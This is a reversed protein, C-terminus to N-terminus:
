EDSQTAKYEDLARFMERIPEEFNKYPTGPVALKRIKEICAVLKEVPTM